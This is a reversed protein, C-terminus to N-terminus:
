PASWDIDVLHYWENWFLPRRHGILHAYTLDNSIRHLLSKYPLYANGILKAERFLAEREPGDPLQQTREYIQDMRAHRFRAFNQGSGIQKSYYAILTDQGDPSAASGGLTWMQLKGAYAAKLQESWQGTFFSTRVGVAEFDKKWLEDFQRNFQSRQTAVEVTLPKGDPRERFGDGDRDIYGYLDLLAKARSPDFDGMESKFKPDYGSTHPILLSQSPIGQGRYLLRILRQVDLSLSLARRLAVQAPETGGVMPDDMNFFTYVGDANLSSRLQIGRKALHPALKGGPLAQGIFAPPVNTIDLDGNLFALWRPQEEEIISVEVRDVMPIRKGKLRALIAQGDADDPAPEADYYHERYGPNRELVILSSRRWQALKFPGTGVPHAMSDDGYHEIVERATGGLLDGSALMEILRPRTQKLKFQITYRDLARIGEIERDYDFPKKAKVAEDRLESLGVFGADEIVSAFPSKNAPDIPRKFAYVYDAAVLERKQGKFVPDDQFYIGPKLRVTWTRFDDTIEPLAAATLPKIKFPRALHDYTYLGEFIHPTITRSYLDSIKAPDFGTEASNFALRLVKPATAASATTAALSLACLAVSLLHRLHLSM